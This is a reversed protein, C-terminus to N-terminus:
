VRDTHRSSNNTLPLRADLARAALILAEVKATRRVGEVQARLIQGDEHLHRVAHIVFGPEVMKLRVVIRAPHTFRDLVVLQRIFELLDLTLRLSIRSCGSARHSLRDLAFVRRGRV